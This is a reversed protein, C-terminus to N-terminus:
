LLWECVHDLEKGNSGLQHGDVRGYCYDAMWDALKGLPKTMERVETHLTLFMQNSSAPTRIGYLLAPVDVDGGSALITRAYDVTPQGSLRAYVPM